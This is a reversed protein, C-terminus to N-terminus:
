KSKWGYAKRADKKLQEQHSALKQLFLSWIQPLRVDQSTIGPGFGKENLLIATQTATTECEALSVHSAAEPHSWIRACEALPVKSEKLLMAAIQEPPHKELPNSDVCGALLVALTFTHAISRLRM